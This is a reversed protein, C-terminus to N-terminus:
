GGLPTALVEIDKLRATGAGEFVLNLKLLDPTQDKKLYFPVELSRYNNTGKVKQHLGRSFFEGRGSIRCWMEQYVSSKLDETSLQCRYTIMCQDHGSIPVEFLGTEDRANM